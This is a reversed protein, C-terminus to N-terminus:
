IFLGWMARITIYIYELSVNFFVYCYLKPMLHM